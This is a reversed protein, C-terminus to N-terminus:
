LELKAASFVSACPLSFRPAKNCTQTHFGSKTAVTLEGLWEAIFADVSQEM